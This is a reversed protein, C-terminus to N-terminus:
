ATGKTLKLQRMASTLSILLHPIISIFIALAWSIGHNKLGFHCAFYFITQTIFFFYCKKAENRRFQVGSSVGLLTFSLISLIKSLRDSFESIHHNRGNKFLDFLSSVDARRVKANKNQLKSFFTDPSDSEKQNDIILHDFGNHESKAHTIFSTNRGKLHANKFKLSEALFLSIREENEFLKAIIVNESNSAKSNISMEAYINSLAPLENKRILVLPNIADSNQEIKVLTLKCLPIVESVFIFNLLMLLTSIYYIPSFIKLLSLGSARLTTLEGSTSLKYSTLFSSILTCISLIHPLTLALISVILLVVQPGRVGSCILLTLKKHKILFSLGVLTLLSLSFIKLYTKTVYQWIIPM